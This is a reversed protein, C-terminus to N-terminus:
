DERIYILLHGSIEACLRYGSRALFNRFSACSDGYAAFSGTDNPDFVIYQASLLHARSCYRIDYLTDRDSLYTTYFTSAAVEAGSEVCRLADSVADYGSANQAYRKPYSLGVPLVVQCFCGASVALALCLALVGVRKKRALLDALNVATLYFLCAASGFSYQFFIDHQYRYDPMLNILLYPILLILREYRRTLLPLACLPLMTFAIYRLKEADVCEYVAKMPLLLVAKVVTLLSGSGDYLLNAYRGTMVGDGCRSLYACVGLFYAVSLVAVGAGLRRQGRALLYLGIVACYVAADEKVLLTLACVLLAASANDRDAAFLLWLLLPTLFANEHLDYGAGGAYAPYLLLLICLAASAGCGLSSRRAIKWLPVVASAMIAAQLVQLTEPKPCLCYFPLMLYYIPSMHVQFHSLTGDRELTTMPSLGTRMSYFMQSFIGFDYTPTSLTRVRAVTWASVFLFFLAGACATVCLWVRRHKEPPQKPLASADYGRLAYVLALAVLLVGASLLPLTFSRLLAGFCLLVVCSFIGFREVRAPCKGRLCILCVFAAAGVLLMRAGSAERLAEMGELASKTLLMESAAAVLYALLLRRLTGGSHSHEINM